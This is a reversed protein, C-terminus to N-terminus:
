NAAAVAVAGRGSGGAARGSRGAASGSSAAGIGVNARAGDEADAASGAGGDAWGGGTTRRFSMTVLTAPGLAFVREAVLSFATWLRLIVAVLTAACLGVSSHAVLLKKM